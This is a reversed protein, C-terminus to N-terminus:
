RGLEDRLLGPALHELQPHGGTVQRASSAAAAPPADPWSTSPSRTSSKVSSASARCPRMRAAATGAARCDARGPPRSSTKRRRVPRRRRSQAPGLRRRPRGRRRRRRRRGGLGRAGVAAPRRITKALLIGLGYLLIQPAMLLLMSFPDGGPLVAALAAIVVLAVRWQTIFIDATVVGIRALALMAVPVEFLLGSAFMLTTVFGFYEGARVQTLFTDGGFNLLFDLAVPLM